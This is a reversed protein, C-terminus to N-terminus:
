REPLDSYRIAAAKTQSHWKHQWKFRASARLFRRFSMLSMRIMLFEPVESVRNRQNETERDM